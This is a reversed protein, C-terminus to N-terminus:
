SGGVPWSLMQGPVPIIASRLWEAAFRQAYVSGRNQPLHLLVVAMEPFATLAHAASEAFRVDRTVVCRFGAPYAAAVLEGNKLQHWGREYTTACTISLRYLAPKLQAPLNHDLLWM